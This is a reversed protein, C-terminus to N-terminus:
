QVEHLPFAATLVNESVLRGIGVEGRKLAGYPTRALIEYLKLVLVSFNCFVPLDTVTHSVHHYINHRYFLCKFHVLYQKRCCIDTYLGLGKVNILWIFLNRLVGKIKLFLSEFSM